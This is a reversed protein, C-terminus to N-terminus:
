FHCRNKFYDNYIVCVYYLISKNKHLYYSLKVIILYGYYMYSSDPKICYNIILLVCKTFLAWLIFLDANNFM